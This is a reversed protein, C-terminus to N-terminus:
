PTIEQDDRLVAQAAEQAREWQGRRTVSDKVSLSMCPGTHLDPLECSHASYRGWVPDRCSRQPWEAKPSEVAVERYLTPCM